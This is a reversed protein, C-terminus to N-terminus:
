TNIHLLESMPQVLLAIVLVVLVIKHALSLKKISVKTEIPLVETAIPDTQSFLAGDRASKPLINHILFSSYLKIFGIVILGIIVFRMYGEFSVSNVLYLDGIIKFTIM